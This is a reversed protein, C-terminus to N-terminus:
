PLNGYERAKGHNDGGTVNDRSTFQHASKWSTVADSRELSVVPLTPSYFLPILVLPVAPSSSRRRRRATCNTSWPSAGATTARMRPTM